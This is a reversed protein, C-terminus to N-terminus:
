LPTMLSQFVWAQVTFLVKVPRWIPPVYRDMASSVDREEAPGPLGGLRQDIVGVLAAHPALECWPLPLLETQWHLRSTNFKIFCTISAKRVRWPIVPSRKWPRRPMKSVVKTTEWFADPHNPILFFEVQCLSGRSRDASQKTMGNRAIVAM